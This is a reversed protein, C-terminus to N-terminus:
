RGEIAIKFFRDVNIFSAQLNDVNNSRSQSNKKMTNLKVLPLQRSQVYSIPPVVIELGTKEAQQLARQHCPSFFFSLFQSVRTATTYYFNV